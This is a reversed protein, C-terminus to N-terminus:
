CFLCDEDYEISCWEQEDEFRTGVWDIVGEDLVKRVCRAAWKTDGAVDEYINDTVEEVEQLPFFLDNLREWDKHQDLFKRPYLPPKTGEEKCVLQDIFGGICCVTGCDAEVRWDSLNFNPEEGGAKLWQYALELYKRHEPLLEVQVASEHTM